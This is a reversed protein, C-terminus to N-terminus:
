KQVLRPAMADAQTPTSAPATTRVNEGDKRTLKGANAAIFAKIADVSETSLLREWQGAYLTVPWRGMGYVSLAGKESVKCTLAGTQTGKSAKAALEANQAQLAAIQEQLEKITAM